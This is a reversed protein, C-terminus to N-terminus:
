SHGERVGSRPHVILAAPPVDVTWFDALNRVLLVRIPGGHTILAVTRGPFRRAVRRVFAGVRQALQDLSEGGPPTIRRPDDLWRGYRSPYRRACEDSTWGEWRGFSLERLQKTFIVDAGPALIEATERCRRLDSSFVRDIRFRRFRRRLRMIQGRGEASLPTNVHGAYRGRSGLISEGHRILLIRTTVVDEGRQPPTM